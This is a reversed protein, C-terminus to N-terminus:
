KTKSTVYYFPLQYHLLMEILWIPAHLRNLTDASALTADQENCILQSQKEKTVFNRQGGPDFPRTRSNRSNRSRNSYPALSVIGALEMDRLQEFNKIFPTQSHPAKKPAAAHFNKLNM